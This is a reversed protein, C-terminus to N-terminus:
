IDFGVGAQPRWSESRLLAAFYGYFSPKGFLIGIGAFGGGVSLDLDNAEGLAGAVGTGFGGMVYPRMSGKSFFYKLNFAGLVVFKATDDPSDDSGTPQSTTNKDDKDVEDSKLTEFNVWGVGVEFGLDGSLYLFNLGLTAQPPNHYGLNITMNAQSIDPKALLVVILCLYQRLNQM